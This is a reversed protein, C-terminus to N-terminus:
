SKGEQARIIESKIDSAAQRPDDASVIGSVVAIGDAGAKIVDYANSRNMGGIAVLPIKAAQRIKKLGELGIGQELEPKTPTTYIPSIGLYDAGMEEAKVAEEVNFASIGIIKGYGIIKRAYDIPMDDQGLHVGDADVATAIDIRDNIIFTIGHQQCYIKVKLAENLFERTSAKKERLQVVTAGGEVAMKIIDPNSRGRSLGRDTVLYLSYDTKV